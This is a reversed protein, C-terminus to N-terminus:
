NCEVSGSWLVAWRRRRLTLSRSSFSSCTSGDLRRVARSASRWVHSLPGLVLWDKLKCLVGTCSRLPSPQRLASCLVLEVPPTFHHPGPGLGRTSCWGAPLQEQLPADGQQLVEHRPHVM